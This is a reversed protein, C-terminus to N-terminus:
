QGLFQPHRWRHPVWEGDLDIEERPNFQSRHQVTEELPIALNLKELYEQMEQLRSFKDVCHMYSWLYDAPQVDIWSVHRFRDEAQKLMTWFREPSLGPRLVDIAESWRLPVKWVLVNQTALQQVNMPTLAFRRPKQLILLSNQYSNSIM